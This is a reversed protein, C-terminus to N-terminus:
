VMAPIVCFTTQESRSFILALSEFIGKFYKSECAFPSIMLRMTLSISLMLLEKWCLMM